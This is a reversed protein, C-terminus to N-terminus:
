ELQSSLEAETIRGLEGARLEELRDHLEFDDSRLFVHTTHDTVEISSPANDLTALGLHVGYHDFAFTGSLSINPYTVEAAYVTM